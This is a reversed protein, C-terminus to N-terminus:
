RAGIAAAGNRYGDLIVNVIEKRERLAQYVRGDVTNRGNLTAVLHYIHTHKAQGPRHLRAVAQEYESLSYGLSYFWAYSAMSMDVGIGGSQIQTILTKTTGHQFAALENKAGSLEGYSRRLRECVSICAEIDSRFRCFIVVAEDLPLDELMDALASAKSPTDAIRSASADDDFRVYGGCVQQLRLLQELANKPTVSGAEVVACFDSEIERYLRAEAPDLDCRVDEYSIPPLDLVDLSKVQHATAAIKRHADDLNRYGVVWNQGNAMVAYRAKHLTFTQGFTQCDPSELSRYIAWLDLVSHPILTGSLGIKVADPNRKCLKGAWRSASGSPAKLRHIEDHVIADWRIKELASVRWASDYNVVVILPSRDATAGEVLRAKDKSTGKDLLLVRCDPLWLGAQKQWAAIVAKPCCVLVRTIGRAAMQRKLFELTTRTKGSGMGHAFVAYKQGSALRLEAWEIAEEQHRWIRSM